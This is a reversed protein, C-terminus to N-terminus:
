VFNYSSDNLCKAVVFDEYKIKHAIERAEIAIEFLTESNDITFALAYYSRIAYM